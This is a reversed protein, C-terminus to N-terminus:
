CCPFTLGTCISVKKLRPILYYSSFFFLSTVNCLRSCTSRIIVCKRDKLNIDSSDFCVFNSWLCRNVLANPCIHYFNDPVIVLCFNTGVEFSDLYLQSLSFCVRSSVELSYITMPFCSDHSLLVCKYNYRDIVHIAQAAVMMFLCPHNYCRDWTLRRCVLTNNSNVMM